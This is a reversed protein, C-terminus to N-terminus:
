TINWDFIHTYKRPAKICRSKDEVQWESSDHVGEKRESFSRERQSLECPSIGGTSESDIESLKEPRFSFSDSCSTMDSSINNYPTEREFGKHVINRSDYVINRSDYVIDPIIIMLNINKEVSGVINNIKGEPFAKPSLIVLPINWDFRHSYKRPAYVNSNSKHFGCPIQIGLDM